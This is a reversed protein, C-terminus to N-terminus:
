CRSVPYLMIYTDLESFLGRLCYLIRQVFCKSGQKVFFVLLKWSGLICDNCYIYDRCNLLRNIAARGLVLQILGTRVWFLSSQCVIVLCGIIIGM